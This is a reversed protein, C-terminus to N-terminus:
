IGKDLIWGRICAPRDRRDYTHGLIHPGAPSVRRALFKDAEDVAGFVKVMTSRSRWGWM